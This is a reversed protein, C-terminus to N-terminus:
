GMSEIAALSPESYTVHRLPFVSSVRPHVRATAHTETLSLSPSPATPDTRSSPSGPLRLRDLLGALCGSPESGPICSSSIREQQAILFAASRLHLSLPSLAGKKGEPSFAPNATRAELVSFTTGKDGSTM